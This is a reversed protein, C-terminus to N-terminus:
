PYSPTHGRRPRHRKGLHALRRKWITHIAHPPTQETPASSPTLRTPSYSMESDTEEEEEENEEFVPSLPGKRWEGDASDLDMADEYVEGDPSYDSGEDMYDEDANQYSTDEPEPTHVSGEESEDDEDANQRLSDKKWALGKTMQRELDKVARYRWNSVQEDANKRAWTSKQSKRSEHKVGPSYTSTRSSSSPAVKTEQARERKNTQTSKGLSETDYTLNKGQRHMIIQGSPLLPQAKKLGLKIEAPTAGTALLRRGLKTKRLKRRYEEDMMSARIHAVTAGTALLKKGIPHVLLKRRISEEQIATEAQKVTLGAGLLKKGAPTQTLKRRSTEEQITTEAQKVTLGADLLKKGASTKMLRIQRDCLEVIQNRDLALQLERTSPEMGRVALPYKRHFDSVEEKANKVADASEWSNDSEPYGKWKVLYQLTKWRGFRRSAIIREVEFEEQGEILDPPPKRYNPGHTTNEKYMTLRSAHFVNHIKRWNKPLELRYNVM